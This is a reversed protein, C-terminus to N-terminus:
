DCVSVCTSGETDLCRTKCGRSVRSHSHFERNLIKGLSVEVHRSSSGLILGGVKRSSQEVERSVAVLHTPRKKKSFYFPLLTQQCVHEKLILSKAKRKIFSTTLAPEM